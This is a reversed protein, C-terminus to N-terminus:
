TWSVSMSSVSGHLPIRDAVINAVRAVKCVVNCAVGLWNTNPRSAIRLTRWSAFQFNDSFPFLFEYVFVVTFFVRLANRVSITNALLYEVAGVGKRFEPAIGVYSRVLSITCTFPLPVTRMFFPETVSVTFM